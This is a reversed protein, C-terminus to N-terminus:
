VQAGSWSRLTCTWVIVPLRRVPCCLVPCSNHGHGPLTQSPLLHWTYGYSATVGVQWDGCLARERNIVIDIEAAGDAVALRIEELRTKLPFQGSPFGTAVAPLPVRPTLPPDEASVPWVPVRHGSYVSLPVCPTLSIAAPDFHPLTRCMAVSLVSQFPRVAM